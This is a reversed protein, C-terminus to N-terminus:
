ELTVFTPKKEELKVYKEKAVAAKKEEMGRRKTDEKEKEKINKEKILKENNCIRIHMGNKKMNSYHQGRSLLYVKHGSQHMCYGIHCGIAGAVYILVNM